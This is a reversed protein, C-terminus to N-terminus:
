GGQIMPILAIHVERKGDLQFKVDHVPLGDVVIAVDAWILSGDAHELSGSFREGYRLGLLTILDKLTSPEQLEIYEEKKGVIPPLVGFYNVKVNM